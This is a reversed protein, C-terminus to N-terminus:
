FLRYNISFYLGNEQLSSTRKDIDVLPIGWDLRATLRDGQQWLLGVGTSVLVNPDPNTGNHNWGGGMDVFPALQLLGNIERARFVPLRVEGSLSFGNDTLLVNQRYGRVTQQGGLGFEELPLLDDGSLQLGGKLLLLTEPALLKVWQAQGRWAFFQSDPANDNVTAELLDLGLSFESFLALVERNGTQTWEQSFRLASLRTRGDADAGPSPFGVSEGIVDSLFDTKSRQHTLRLGLALEENPTQVLPQRFSVGYTQSESQIDLVTFPDEIVSSDSLSTQWGITGNRANVPFTYDLKVEDSGSTNLYELEIRDGQGLLNGETLAIGRRWSGVSPSRNNDTRLEVDFTDAVTVEVDLISTGPETGTALEATINQILPDLQLLRLGDLLRESNLPTSGALALRSRVYNPSLRGVIDVNIDTLQGELVQIQLIGDTLTQPPIYAGSNVYGQDVYRQTIASRVEFLEAPTLPRNLYPATITALDSESFVTSGIVEFASIVISEPVTGPLAPSPAVDIPIDLIRESPLPQIDISEPFESQAYRTQALVSEAILGGCVGCMWISLCFRLCHFIPVRLLTM